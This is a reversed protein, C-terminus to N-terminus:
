SDIKGNRLGFTLYIIGQEGSQSRHVRCRGFLKCIMEQLRGACESEDPTFTIKIKM